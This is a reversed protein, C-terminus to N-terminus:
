SKRYTGRITFSLRSIENEARIDLTTSVDRAIYKDLIVWEEVGFFARGARLPSPSLDVSSQSM